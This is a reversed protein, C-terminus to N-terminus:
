DEKRGAKLSDQLAALEDFKGDAALRAQESWSAPNALNGLGAESLVDKVQAPDADALQAFTHIGAKQLTNAITPGIGEILELNDSAVEALESEVALEQKAQMELAMGGALPAQTAMGPAVLSEAGDSVHGLRDATEGKNREKRLAYLVALFLIIPLLLCVGWLILPSSEEEALPAFGSFLSGALTIVLVLSLKRLM